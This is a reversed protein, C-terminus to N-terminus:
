FQEKTSVKSEKEHKRKNKKDNENKKETLESDKLNKEPSKDAKGPTNTKGKLDEGLVIIFDSGCAAM